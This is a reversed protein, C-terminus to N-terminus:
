SLNDLIAQRAKQIFGFSFVRAGFDITNFFIGGDKQIFDLRNNRGLLQGFLQRRRFRKRMEASM